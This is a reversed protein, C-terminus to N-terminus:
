QAILLTVPTDTSPLRNAVAMHKAIEAIIAQTYGEHGREGALAEAVMKSAKLNWVFLDDDAETKDGIIIELVNEKHGHFKEDEHDVALDEVSRAVEAEVGDVYAQGNWGAARQLEATAGANARVREALDDNYTTGLYAEVEPISMFARTAELIAPNTNIAENDTVEGNAGGCGGKHASREFGTAGEVYSDIATIQEGLSATEPITKTISAEANLAVGHNSASGGVRRLRVQANSGDANCNTHRGDICACARLDTVQVLNEVARAAHENMEEDSANVYVSPIGDPNGLGLDKLKGIYMGKRELNKEM